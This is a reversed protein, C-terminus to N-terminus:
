LLQELAPALEVRRGGDEAARIADHLVHRLAARGDDAPHASGDLMCRLANLCALYLTLPEARTLRAEYEDQRGAWAGRRRALLAEFEESLVTAPDEEEVLHLIPAESTIVCHTRDPWTEVVADGGFSFFIVPKGVFDRLTIRGACVRYSAAHWPHHIDMQRVGGFYAVPLHLERTDYHRHTPAAFLNVDLRPYGPEGPRLAPHLYYGLEDNNM